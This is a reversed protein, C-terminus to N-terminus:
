GLAVSYEAAFQQILTADAITVNGDGDVDAAAFYAGNLPEYEAIHRQVATVDRVDVVGDGNADGKVPVDIAQASLFMWLLMRGSSDTVTANKINVVTKDDFWYGFAPELM